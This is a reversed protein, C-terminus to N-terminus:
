PLSLLDGLAAQPRWRTGYYNIRRVGERDVISKPTTHDVRGAGRKKVAVGFVKWVWELEELNGTLFKWTLFDASFRGGYDRLVPPTRHFYFLWGGLQAWL